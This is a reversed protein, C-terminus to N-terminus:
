NGERTGDIETECDECIPCGCDDTFPKHCIPCVKMM